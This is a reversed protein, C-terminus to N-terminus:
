QQCCRAYADNNTGDSCTVTWTWTGGSTPYSESMSGGGCDGGGGMALEGAACSAVITFLDQGTNSSTYCDHPVDGGTGAVNYAGSAGSARMQGNVELKAGPNTTGIGVENNTTDVFFTNADFDITNGGSTVDWDATLAFGNYAYGDVTAENDQTNSDTGCIWTTANRQFWDGSGCESDRLESAGVQNAVLDSATAAADANGSIDIDWTGSADGGTRTPLNLAGA